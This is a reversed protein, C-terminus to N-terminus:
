HRLAALRHECSVALICILNEHQIPRFGQPLQDMVSDADRHLPEKLSHRKQGASLVQMARCAEPIADRTGVSCMQQNTSTNYNVLKGHYTAM